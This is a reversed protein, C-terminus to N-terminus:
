RCRRGNSTWAAFYPFSRAFHPEFAMIATMDLMFRMELMEYHEEEEEAYENLIGNGGDAVIM